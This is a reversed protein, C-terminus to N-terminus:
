FLAITILVIGSIFAFIIGIILRNIRQEKSFHWISSKESANKVIKKRFVFMLFSILLLVLGSLLNNIDNNTM